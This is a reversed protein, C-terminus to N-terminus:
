NDFVYTAFIDSSHEQRKVLSIQTGDWGLIAPQARIFPPKYMTSYAGVNDFILLDGPAIAGSFDTALIDDEICTYGCIDADHLDVPEEEGMHVVTMSPLIRSRGSPKINHVSGYVTVYHKAGVKKINDVACIFKMTDAVVMTGPEIVLTVDRCPFAARMREGVVAAYEAYSPIKHPFQDLLAQPMRGFFGGGIDIYRCPHDHSFVRQAIDIVKQVREAYSNLSRDSTSFHCHVGVPTCGHLRSLRAFADDIDSSETSIGFRTNKQGSIPFNCRVSCEVPHANKESLYKEILDIEHPSDIHVTAGQSLARYLAQKPKLPGNFIIKEPPFGARLALDYEMESVVEAKAGEELALKCIRPTYNTKLSYGIIPTAYECEFAARLDRLNKRFVHEELIFFAPGHKDVLQALRAKGMWTQNVMLVERGTHM